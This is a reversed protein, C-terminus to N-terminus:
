SVTVVSYRTCLATGNAHRRRCCRCKSLMHMCVEDYQERSYALLAQCVPVGLQLSPTHGSISVTRVKPEQLQQSLHGGVRDTVGGLYNEKAVESYEQM